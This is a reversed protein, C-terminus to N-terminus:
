DDGEAPKWVSCNVREARYQGGSTVLRLTGGTSGLVTNKRRYNQSRRGPVKLDIRIVLVEDPGIVMEINHV